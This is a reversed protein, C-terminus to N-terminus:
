NATPRQLRDIVLVDILARSPELKLGLQEQLAAFVSPPNGPSPATRIFGLLDLELAIRYSGTLGTKDIIPRGGATGRILFALKKM